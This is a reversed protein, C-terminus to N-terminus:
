DASDRAFLRARDAPVKRFRRPGAFAQRTRGACNGDDHSNAPKEAAGRGSPSLSSLAEDPQQQALYADALLLYGPGRGPQKKLFRTLLEVPGHRTAEGFIWNRWFNPQRAM